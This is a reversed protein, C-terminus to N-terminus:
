EGNRRSGKGHSTAKSAPFHNPTARSPVLVRRASREIEFNV